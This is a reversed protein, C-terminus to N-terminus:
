CIFESLKSYIDELTFLSFIFYTHTVRMFQIVASLIFALAIKKQKKRVNFKTNM